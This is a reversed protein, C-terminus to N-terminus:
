EREIPSQRNRIIGVYVWLYGSRFGNTLITRGPDDDTEENNKKNGAM